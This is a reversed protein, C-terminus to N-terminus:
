RGLEQLLIDELIRAANGLRQGKRMSYPTYEITVPVEVYRMNLDAIISLLESAHAMRDQRLHIKQAAERSMARLGNHTDTLKLGTTFNTFLTAAKLVLRRTRAINRAEGLFRSGLVVDYGGSDLTALMALADSLRHQGDSDFTVIHTAGEKLAYAIGTGLGAGQGRNIAHRLVHAGARHAQDGTADTSGDDIVVVNGHPVVDSVVAAIKEGENYAPIVFWVARM